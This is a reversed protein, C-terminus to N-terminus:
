KGRSGDVKHDERKAEAMAEPEQTEAVTNLRVFVGWAALLAAAMLGVAAAYPLNSPDNRSYHFVAVLSEISLSVVLVVLFRSLFRRVRTPASMHAERQVEEEFITQGLELSAVSITLLAISNLVRDLRSERGADSFPWLAEWLDHVAIGLLALACIVFLASILFHSVPFLKVFPKMRRHGKSESRRPPPAKARERASDAM